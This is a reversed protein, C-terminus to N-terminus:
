GNVSMQVTVVLIGICVALITAMLAMCISLVSMVRKEKIGMQNVLSSYLDEIIEKHHSQTGKNSLTIKDNFRRVIEKAMPSLVTNPEEEMSEEIVEKVDEQLILPKRSPVPANQADQAVRIQESLKTIRAFIEHVDELNAKYDPKLWKYEYLQARKSNSKEILGKEELVDFTVRNIRKEKFFETLSFRSAPSTRVMLSNIGNIYNEERKSKSFKM